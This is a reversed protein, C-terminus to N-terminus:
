WAGPGDRACPRAGQRARLTARATKGRWGSPDLAHLALFDMRAGRASRGPARTARTTLCGLRLVHLRRGRALALLLALSLFSAAGRTVPRRRNAPM